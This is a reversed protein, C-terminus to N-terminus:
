GRSEPVERRPCAGGESFARKSWGVPITCYATKGDGSFSGFEASLVRLDRRASFALPFTTIRVPEAKHARTAGEIYKNKNDKRKLRKRKTGRKRISHKSATDYELVQM